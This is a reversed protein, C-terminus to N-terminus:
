PVNLTAQKKRKKLRIVIGTGSKQRKWNHKDVIWSGINSIDELYFICTKLHEKMRIINNAM